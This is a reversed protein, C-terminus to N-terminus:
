KLEEGNGEDTMELKLNEGVGLEKREKCIFIPELYSWLNWMNGPINLKIRSFM